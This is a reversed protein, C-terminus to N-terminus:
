TGIEELRKTLRFGYASVSGVIVFIFMAIASALGLQQLQENFALRFTFNILLDTSGGETLTGPFPGGGTLMEILTYNNFNFAFTTVLLPATAVLLLPLVVTRFAYRGPAGDVFAAEKLDAPIATLAGSCVLLFYPFGMWLNVILVSFRALSPDTLWPTNAGLIQNILGFDTNLMAQWILATMIMPLGYPVILLLRYIGQGRMRRDNMVLALVLGLSFNLLTTAIAFFFTWATIPLFRARLTEDTFLNAFNDFGVSVRWGPFIAEGSPRVFNGREPDAPSVTGDATSVMADQEEDYVLGAQAQQAQTVSIARLYIGQEEDVPPRLADWQAQYDPNATLTGLNLSEYGQVGVVRDGERIIDGEPVDTVGENTGVQVEGTDQNNILMSVTDDRVIPVVAYTPSGEVPVVSGQEIALIADEKSGLHGTGYNTFAAFGTFVMMYLQIAVLFVLGPLLYKFPMSRGTFYVLNVAVLVVGFFVLALWWEAAWARAMCMILLADVLGVLIIKILLNGAKISRSDPPPPVQEAARPETDLM